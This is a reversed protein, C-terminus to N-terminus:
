GNKEKSSRLFLRGIERKEPDKGTNSILAIMNQVSIDQYNIEERVAPIYHELIPILILATIGATFGGNYLVFGGHLASTATCMSACMFGSLLGARIGYRGVIPALGTAFAVGNIYGQTTISWTIARGNVHCFFATVFYLVQYGLVIPWVNKPHQGMATFTLSALMVGMTPGTFGAGQTFTIVVVLYALFLLGYFGINILCLPMGYRETFDSNHGTDRLLKRYGKLSKGNLLYGAALCCLFVASFFCVAYLKYSHGHQNYIVNNHYIPGMSRIGMTKYMFNYVFFGFLGFALGGNYLDYGKHWVQAGPLIAPVVFGLLISFAIALLIGSPTLSLQGFVFSGRQTYRFLFESIFPAFSTAFMCVQLNRKLDLKNLRLYLFPALFCPWMNLFNLGYFCHAVVLFYGALTNAHSEGKLGAMFLFCVMGCAGANLMAASLGGVALYDTVLPCPSIMILYWSHFVSGWEGTYLAAAFASIFFAVSFFLAAGNIIQSNTPRRDAPLLVATRGDARAPDGPGDLGGPRDPGSQGNLDDTRVSGAKGDLDGPRDPGALGDQEYISTRGEM